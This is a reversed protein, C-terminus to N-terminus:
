EDFTWRDRVTSIKASPHIISRDPNVIKVSGQPLGYYLEISRQVKRVRADGRVARQRKSGHRAIITKNKPESLLIQKNEELYESNPIEISNQPLEQVEINEKINELLADFAWSEDDESWEGTFFEWSEDEFAGILEYSSESQAGSESEYYIVGIVTQLETTLKLQIRGSFNNRYESNKGEFLIIVEHELYKVKVNSAPFQEWYIENSSLM